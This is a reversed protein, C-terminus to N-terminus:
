FWGNRDTFLTKLGFEYKWSDFDTDTIDRKSVEIESKIVGQIKKTSITYM